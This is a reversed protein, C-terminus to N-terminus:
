LYMIRYSTEGHMIISISWSSSSTVHPLSHNDRLIREQVYQSFIASILITVLTETDADSQWDWFINFIDMILLYSANILDILLWNINKLSIAQICLNTEWILLERLLIQKTCIRYMIYCKNFVLQSNINRININEVAM